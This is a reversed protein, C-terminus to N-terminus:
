LYYMQFVNVLVLSLFIVQIKAISYNLNNFENKIRSNQLLIFAFPLLPIFYRGQVGDILYYANDKYYLYMSLFILNIVVLCSICIIIKDKLSVIYKDNEFLSICVLIIPFLYLPDVLTRGGGFIGTFMGQLYYKGLSSISNVLTFLYIFPNEIVKMLKVHPDIASTAIMNGLKSNIQYWILTILIPIVVACLISIFYNIKNKFKSFPLIFIVITFFVYPLKCLAILSALIIINIIDKKRIQNESYKLHLIYAIMLFSVSFQIGDGSFGAVQHLTMPLLLICFFTNKQIPMLKISLYGFLTYFLVSFIRGLILSIIIPLSLLSSILFSFYYPIYSILSYNAATDKIEIKESSFPIEIAKLTKNFDYKFAPDFEASFDGVTENLKVYSSSVIGTSNREIIRGSYCSYARIFHTTEDTVRFPPVVLALCIGFIVSLFVFKNEVPIFRKTKLIFILILTVLLFITLLIYVFINNIKPLILLGCVFFYIISYVLLEFNKKIMNIVNM